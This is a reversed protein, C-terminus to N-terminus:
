IRRQWSYNIIRFIRIVYAITHTYAYSNKNFGSNKIFANDLKRDHILELTKIAARKLNKDASIESAM